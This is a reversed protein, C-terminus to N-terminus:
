NMYQNKIFYLKGGEMHTFWKPPERLPTPDNEKRNGIIIEEKEAEEVTM